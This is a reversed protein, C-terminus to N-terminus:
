KGAELNVGVPLRMLFLALAICWRQIHLMAAAAKVTANWTLISSRWYRQIQLKCAAGHRLVHVPARPVARSPLSAGCTGAQAGGAEHVALGRVADHGVLYSKKKVTLWVKHQGLIKGGQRREVLRM